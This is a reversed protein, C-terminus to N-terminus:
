DQVCWVRAPDSCIGITVSRPSVASVIGLHWAASPSVASGEHFGNDSTWANGNVAGGSVESVAYAEQGTRIWGFSSPLGAGSDDNVYGLAQAGLFV